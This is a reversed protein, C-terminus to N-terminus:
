FESCSIRTHNYCYGIINNHKSQSQQLRDHTLNIVPKINFSKMVIDGKKLHANVTVLYLM